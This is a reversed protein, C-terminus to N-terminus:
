DWEDLNYITSGRMKYKKWCNVLGAKVPNNLIYRIQNSLDKDSRLIHDYYDKQWKFDPLNKYLWYGSKQKFSDICKKINSNSNKGTLVFHFHDPMFLYIYADCNHTALAELLIKEIQYFARDNSFLFDRNKVNGTYAVIREGTYLEPRLRHKKERIHKRNNKM